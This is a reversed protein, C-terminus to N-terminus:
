ESKPPDPLPMWHTPTCFCSFGHRGKGSYIATRILPDDSEPAHPRYVLM